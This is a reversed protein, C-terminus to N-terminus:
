NTGAPGVGSRTSPSAGRDSRDHTTELVVDRCAVLEGKRDPRTPWEWVALTKSALM